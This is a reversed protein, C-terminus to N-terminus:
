GAAAQDQDRLFSATNWIFAQPWSVLWENIEGPANAGGWRCHFYGENQAGAPRRHGHFAKGEAPAVNQIANAWLLDARRKWHPDGTYRWLKLMGPVAFAGWPDLHHHQTSVATGGLTRFGCTAFDSGPVPLTDHHFMWSCFYWGAMKACDLWKADGDTEYLALAGSLLPWSTEKDICCTDLAGATCYFKALDRDRYFRCARQAGELYRRDRTVAYLECLAPIMFAGITGGGDVCEGTEVNWAKGFGNEESFRDLLFGATTEAAQLWNAKVVGKEALFRYAVALEAVAYSLNCVDATPAPILDANYNTYPLGTKGARDAWFDLIATGTRVLDTDDTEFGRRIMQRAYLGNQGCWGFEFDVRHTYAEGNWLNGTCILTQGNREVLLTRAFACCLAELEEPTYRPPFPGALLDLAADEVLATAYYEKEPAGEMLYVTTRFPEGPALTIFAERADAYRDRDRYTLPTEMGPYLIRHLMRGDECPIMSCSANLSAADKNSAFMAFFREGNESVTCAPIATRRHDFVWPKGDLALGKPEKGKGWANGNYIVAPIVYHRYPFDTKARIELQCVLPTDGTNEWAVTIERVSASVPREQAAARVAGGRAAASVFAGAPTRYLFDVPLEAMM